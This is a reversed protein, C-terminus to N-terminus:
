AIAPMQQFDAMVDYKDVQGVLWNSKVMVFRGYYVTANHDTIELDYLNNVYVELQTKYTKPLYHWTFKLIQPNYKTEPTIFAQSGDALQTRVQTSRSEITLDVNPKYITGEPTWVTAIKRRVAWTGRNDLSM